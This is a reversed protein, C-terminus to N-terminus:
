TEQASIKLIMSSHFELLIFHNFVSKQTSADKINLKLTIKVDTGFARALGPSPFKGTGSARAQCFPGPKDDRAIISLKEM